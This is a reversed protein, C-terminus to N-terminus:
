RNETGRGTYAAYHLDTTTKYGRFFKKAIVNLLPDTLGSLFAYDVNDALHHRAHHRKSMFVGSTNILRIIGTDAVHCCYHTVEAVSSLIGIYVMITSVVPHMPITIILIAAALLYGVLWVKSGSENFYVMLLPNPKYLPTRHHLHFAAILPGALSEYNDNNDMYMHVLGNLFDAALYAALFSLIQGPVGLSLPSVLYLLFLQLSVVLISVLRGIGTYISGQEYLEMAANFQEQKITLARDQDMNRGKWICQLMDAEHSTKLISGAAAPISRVTV